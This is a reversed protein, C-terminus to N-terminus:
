FFPIVFWYALHLVVAFPFPQFSSVTQESNPDETLLGWPGVTGIQGDENIYSFSMREVVNNSRITVSELRRSKGQMERLGGGIFGWPGM